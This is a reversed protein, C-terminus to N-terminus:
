FMRLDQWIGMACLRVYVDSFGVWFLSCWAWLMHNENLRTVGKWLTHRPQAGPCTFCDLKGGILHRLSHCGFTYCSLLIVNITLVLSGVGIGFGEEFSFANIADYALIFIFIVAIYFFYRHLNQLIFPFATEGKYRRGSSESVACAPPDLFYARYYAKRYYYCTARFGAPAWLILFAPSLKWWPFVSSLNPSYFPSLYPGYEFYANQFAAWTSYVIFAGLGLATGLPALWWPDRRVTAGLGSGQLLVSTEAM